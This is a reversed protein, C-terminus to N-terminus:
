ARPAEAAAATQGDGLLAQLKTRFQEASFPIRVYGIAGLKLAELVVNQSTERSIILVPIKRLDAHARIQRLFELGDMRPMNIDSLVLRVQRNRLRDLAEAGDCAEFIEGLPLDLQHLARLVLKRVVASDDVILIDPKM